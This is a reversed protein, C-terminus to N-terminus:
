WSQFDFDFKANALRNEYYYLSNPFFLVPREFTKVKKLCKKIM